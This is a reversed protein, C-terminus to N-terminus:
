YNYDINFYPDLIYEYRTCNYQCGEYDIKVRVNMQYYFM